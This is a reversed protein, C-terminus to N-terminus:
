PQELSEGQRLMDGMLALAEQAETMQGWTPQWRLDTPLEGDRKLYEGLRYRGCDMAYVLLDRQLSSLKM